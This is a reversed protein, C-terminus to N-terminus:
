KILWMAGAMGLTIAACLVAIRAAWLTRKELKELTEAVFKFRSNTFDADNEITNKLEAVTANTMGSTADIYNELDGLYRIVDQQNDRLIQVQDPLSSGTLAAAYESTERNIFKSGEM